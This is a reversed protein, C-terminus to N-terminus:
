LAFRRDRDKEFALDARLRDIGGEQVAPPVTDLDPTGFHRLPLQDLDKRRQRRM